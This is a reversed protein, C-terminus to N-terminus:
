KSKMEYYLSILSDIYEPISVVTVVIPMQAHNVGCLESCQGYAIGEKKLSISIANLRGPVADIKIGFSPVAWSHLVDAATILLRVATRVPLVFANDVELLRFHTPSSTDTIPQIYSLKNMIIFNIDDNENINENKEELFIDQTGVDKFPPYEYGWYWQYGTIKNSLLPSIPEDFSYLLIFSPIAILFLICSPTLTWILELLTAHTVNKSADIVKLNLGKLTQVFNVQFGMLTLFFELTLYFYFLFFMYFRYYNALILIHALIIIVFILIGTLFIWIYSHFSAINLMLKSMAPQFTLFM